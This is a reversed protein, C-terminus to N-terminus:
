IDSNGPNALPAGACECQSICYRIYTNLTGTLHIDYQINQGKEALRQRDYIKNNQLQNNM